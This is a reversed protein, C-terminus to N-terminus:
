PQAAADKERHTESISLAQRIMDFWTAVFQQRQEKTATTPVSVKTEFTGDSLRVALELM